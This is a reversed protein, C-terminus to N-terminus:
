SSPKDPIDLRNGNVGPEGGALQAIGTAKAGYSGNGPIVAKDVDLRSSCDFHIPDYNQWDGGWECGLLQEIIHPIGSRTWDEHSYGGQSARKPDSHLRTGESEDEEGEGDM